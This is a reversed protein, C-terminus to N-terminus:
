IVELHGKRWWKQSDKFEQLTLYLCSVKKHKQPNKKKEKSFIILVSCLNEFVKGSPKWAPIKKRVWSFPLKCLLIHLLSIVWFPEIGKAPIYLKRKRSRLAASFCGSGGKREILPLSIKGYNVLFSFFRGPFSSCSSFGAWPQDDNHMCSHATVTTGVCWLVGLMGRLCLGCCGCCGRLRGELVSGVSGFWDRIMIKTDCHKLCHLLCFGIFPFICIRQLLFRQTVLEWLYECWGGKRNLGHIYICM